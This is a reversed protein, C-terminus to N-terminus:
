PSEIKHIVNVYFQLDKPCMEPISPLQLEVAQLFSFLHMCNPSIVHAITVAYFIPTKGLQFSYISHLLRYLLNPLVLNLPGVTDVEKKESNEGRGRGSHVELTMAGYKSSELMEFCHLSSNAKAM